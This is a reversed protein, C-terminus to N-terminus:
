FELTNSFLWNRAPSMAFSGESYEEDTVNSIGMAWLTNDTKMFLSHSQGAEVIAVGSAVQVPTSRDTTTGIGLQGVDNNGTAWLTGDAKVFLSHYNGAALDIVGAAIQVPTSRNTHTGDGLQGRNNYGMVWLTGDAKVFLSHGGGAAVTTVESAVQVPTSRNTTTGDGLQGVVNWGMVWLTGDVKVFLSHDQGVAVKSVGSAIQVPENRDITTGDGLQGYANSGTAWLTGDLRLILTHSSGAAVQAVNGFVQEPVTVWPHVGLQGDGNSGAGWLSFASAQAPQQTLVHVAGGIHVTATRQVGTENPLVRVDILAGGAGELRSLHVWPRDASATWSGAERVSLVYIAAGGGLEKVQPSVEAWAPLVCIFHWIAFVLRHNWRSPRIAANVM